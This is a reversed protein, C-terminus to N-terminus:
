IKNWIAQAYGCLKEQRDKIEDPGWQIYYAVDKNPEIKSSLYGSKKENFPKNSVSINIPGSLLMLNGLRWLYADHVDPPVDWQDSNVPMIHEIHVESTEPNIELTKDLHKHVKTLVYRVIEKESKAPTWISMANFFEEDTVIQSKIKDCVDITNELVGDYIQKALAAFFRESQNAVRGCITLNRFVYSEIAEAVDAIDDESYQTDAQKLALIVPYFSKAKLIKLAKLCAILRGNEFASDEGPFSMAQYYPALTELTALLERSTKPTSVEKSISRYLAKDRTFEHCSNWYHRIFKTPDAKDLAGIMANWRKLSQSVDIKSQSFIFNKLLDATELDKGRANLTEFIVFAEDLKTAELYLVNFRTTFADFFENLCELQEEEDSSYEAMAADLKDSFFVFAKRLREHSKKKEKGKKNPKGLQISNRFYDSDLASLFLHLSNSKETYRGIYLSRIDSYKDNAEDNKTDLYIKEYCLQLARLFVVSTISRQQGDIIYKKGEQEDIHIVIQGFFHILRDPDSRTAELDDWFDGLEEAEWSYERQYDPIHYTGGLFTHMTWVSSNQLAM